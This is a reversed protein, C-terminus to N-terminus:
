IFTTIYAKQLIEREVVNIIINAVDFSFYFIHTILTIGSFKM